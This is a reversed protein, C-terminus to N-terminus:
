DKGYSILRLKSITATIWCYLGNVTLLVRASLFYNGKQPLSGLTVLNVNLHIIEDHKVM